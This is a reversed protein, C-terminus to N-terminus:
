VAGNFRKFLLYIGGLCIIMIVIVWIVRILWEPLNSQAKKNNM